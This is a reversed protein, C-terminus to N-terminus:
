SLGCPPNGLSTVPINGKNDLQANEIQTRTQCCIHGCDTKIKYDM